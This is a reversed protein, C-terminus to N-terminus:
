NSQITKKGKNLGMFYGGIASPIIYAAVKLVSIIININDTYICGTVFVALLLLMFTTLWFGYKMFM